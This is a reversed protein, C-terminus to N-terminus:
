AAGGKAKGETAVGQAWDLLGLAGDSTLETIAWVLADMRDPSKASTAPDWDCMEDELRPLAGVHHVRSQEYLAAIPEARTAKGKSARVGTYAVNADRHRIISEVMDGGQNTEAVVRDAAHKYYANVAAQGWKDPSAILSLDELVYFHPPTQRDRGAVVIGTLDSDENSTVAPDVGVVIRYLDPAHALRTADIQARNWLAGPNDELIEANLEQRGLRTGEYRTVIQQLFAGALNARNDYTSGRTVHTSPAAILAKVLATPRPTTTVVAQPATGLRLGLSAQDWAEPYRWAALEDCWLKEGQKGRLREPEDATFILSVAGNPWELRRKSPVYTPREGRPCIALIGSEGEIMIDRADDATAGILNVFQHGRRVWERVTEAGTRTKGYGRGALILWTIWDGGPLAQNPRRWFSWDFRLLPLRAGLGAAWAEFEAEPWDRMEDALSKM